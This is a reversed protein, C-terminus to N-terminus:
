TKFGFFAVLLMSGHPDRFYGYGVMSWGVLLEFVHLFCSFTWSSKASYEKELLFTSWRLGPGFGEKKGTQQWAESITPLRIARECRRRFCGKPRSGPPPVPTLRAAM